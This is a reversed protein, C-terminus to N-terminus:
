VTFEKPCSRSERRTSLIIPDHDWRTGRLVVTIRGSILVPVTQDQQRWLSRPAELPLTPTIKIVTSMIIIKQLSESSRWLDRGWQQNKSRIAKGLGQGRAIPGLTWLNVLMETSLISSKTSLTPFETPIHTPFTVNHSKINSTEQCYFQKKNEM